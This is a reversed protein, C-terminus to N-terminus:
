CLGAAESLGVVVNVEAVTHVDAPRVARHGSGPNLPQWRQRGDYGLQPLSRRRASVERERGDRVPCCVSADLVRAAPVALLVALELAQEIQGAADGHCELERQRALTHVYSLAERVCSPAYAVPAFYRRRQGSISVIESAGLRLQARGLMGIDGGTAAPEA